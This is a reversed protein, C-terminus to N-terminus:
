QDMQSFDGYDSEFVIKGATNFNDFQVFPIVITKGTKKSKGIWVWWSQVVQADQDIYHLYDPYSQPQPILRVSDYMDIDKDWMNIADAISMTKTMGSSWYRATDSYIQMNAADDKALYAKMADNVTDVYPGYMYITGNEKIDQSFCNIGFLFLSLTLIVKKM